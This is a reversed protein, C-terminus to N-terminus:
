LKKIQVNVGTVRGCYFRKAKTALRKADALTYATVGYHTYYGNSDILHGNLTVRYEPKM